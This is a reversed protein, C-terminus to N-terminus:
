FYELQKLRDVIDALIQKFQEKEQETKATHLRDLYYNLMSELTVIEAEASTSDLISDINVENDTKKITWIVKEPTHKRNVVDVDEKALQAIAKILDTKAFENEVDFANETLLVVLDITGDPNYRLGFDSIEKKGRDTVFDVFKKGIQEFEDIPEFEEEFYILSNIDLKYGTRGSPTKIMDQIEGYMGVTKVYVFDGVSFKRHSKNM